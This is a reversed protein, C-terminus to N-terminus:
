RHYTSPPPDVTCMTKREEKPLVQRCRIDWLSVAKEYVKWQLALSNNFRQVLEPDVAALIDRTQVPSSNLRKRAYKDWLKQRKKDPDLLRRLVELFGAYQEVVGVVWFKELNRMADYTADVLVDGHLTRKDDGTLRFIFGGRQDQSNTSGESFEGELGNWRGRGDNDVIGARGDTVGSLDTAVDTALWDLMANSIFHQAEELSEVEHPHLFQKGSVFVELPNRLSTIMVYPRKVHRQFGWLFHGALVKQRSIIEEQVPEDLLEHDSLCIKDEKRPRTCSVVIAGNKGEAIAWDVLM